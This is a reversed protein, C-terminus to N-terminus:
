KQKISITNYYNGDQIVAKFLRESNTTNPTVKIFLSKHGTKEIYIGGGEIVKDHISHARYITDKTSIETLWWNDGKKTQLEISDKNSNFIVERTELGITDTANGVEDNHCSTFTYFLSIFFIFNFNKKM